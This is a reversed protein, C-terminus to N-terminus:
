LGSRMSNGRNGAIMAKGPLSLQVSPTNLALPRDAIHAWRSVDEPSVRMHLISAEIFLAGQQDMAVSARVVAQIVHPREDPLQEVADGQLVEHGTQLLV